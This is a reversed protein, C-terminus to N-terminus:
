RDTWPNWGVFQCSGTMMEIKAGFRLVAWTPEYTHFIVSHLPLSKKWDIKTGEDTGSKSVKDTYGQTILFDELLFNFQELCRVWYETAPFAREKKRHDGLIAMHIPFMDISMAVAWFVPVTNAAYWKIPAQHLLNRWYLYFNILKCYSHM